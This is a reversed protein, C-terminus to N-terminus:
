YYLLIFIIVNVSDCGDTLQNLLVSIRLFFLPSKPTIIDKLIISAIALCRGGSFRGRQQFANDLVSMRRSSPLKSSRHRRPSM